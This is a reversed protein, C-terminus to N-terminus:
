SCQKSAMEWFYLVAVDVRGAPVVRYRPVRKSVRQLGAEDDGTNKPSSMRMLM